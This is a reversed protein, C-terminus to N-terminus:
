VMVCWGAEWACMDEMEGSGRGEEGREDHQEFFLHWACRRRVNMGARRASRASMATAAHYRQGSMLSTARSTLELRQFRCLADLPVDSSEGNTLFLRVGERRRIKMKNIIFRSTETYRMTIKTPSSTHTIRAIM